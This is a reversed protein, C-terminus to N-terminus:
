RPRSALEFFALVERVVRPASALLSHDDDLECLSVHPRTAAYRRSGAIPVTEDRTGHVIRTACPVDPFAPARAMEEYFAWHVPVLTGTADPLSLEGDARWRAFASPGVIAPWLAAPDFAPCLLVLREVRDPRLEAWRAALYGGLSSGVLSWRDGPASAAMRDIEELAAGVSLRAFSPRNLDPRALEIALGELAAALAAAKRAGPGSAFGHLYAYRM